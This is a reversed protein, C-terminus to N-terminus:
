VIGDAPDIAKTKKPTTATPAQQENNLKKVIEDVSEDADSKQEAVKTTEAAKSAVKAKLEEANSPADDNDVSILMADEGDSSLGREQYEDVVAARTLEISLPVRKALKRLPTKKAMEVFATKWPSFDSETDCYQKVHEHVDDISMVEFDVGGNTQLCVAYVHTIDGRDKDAPKHSLTPHTGYQYSFEDRERVEHSCFTKVQGSRYALAVFGRYGIQFTAEKCKTKNNWRPVMYAHGLPGTLELGMESAQVVCGVISLSSCKQLEPTKSYATMAVRIMREPTMHKPLAMAIQKESRKLLDNLEALGTSKKPQATMAAQTM